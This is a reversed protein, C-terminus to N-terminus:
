VPSFQSDSARLEQEATDSLQTCSMGTYAEPCLQSKSNHYYNRLNKEANYDLSVKPIIIQYLM